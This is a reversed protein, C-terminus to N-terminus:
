RGFPWEYPIKEKEGDPRKDTWPGSTENKRREIHIHDVDHLSDHPGTYNPDTGHAKDVRVRMPGKSDEGSFKKMRSPDTSVDDMKNLNSKLTNKDTPIVTGEKTVIFDPNIKKSAKSLDGAADVLDEGKNVARSVDHGADLLKSGYKGVKGAWSGPVYPILGVVDWALYGANAWSPERVISVLSDGLSIVDLVTEVPVKGDPDQYKLPNNYCYAYRNLSQPNYWNPTISDARIFRGIVPDYLRADYNYLNTSTDREQDTLFAIFNRM